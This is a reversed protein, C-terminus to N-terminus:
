FLDRAHRAAQEMVEPRSIRGAAAPVPIRRSDGSLGGGFAGSDARHLQGDAREQLQREQHHQDSGLHRFLAGPAPFARQRRCRGCSFEPRGSRGVAPENGFFKRRTAENIVAVFNANKDDEATFAAGELFEFELIEWFAGDTRKLYAPIKEGNKYSHVLEPESFIAVKEANPLTRVYRDLFGYGTTGNWTAHDDPSKMEMFFVGLTRAQKTEPAYPSFTTDLFAVAVMLVVLTFSIAFLSIFTFFKRRLFVKFAIKLYNKLM